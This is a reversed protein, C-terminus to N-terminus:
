VRDRLIARGDRSSTFYCRLIVRVNAGPNQRTTQKVKSAEKKRGEKENRVYKYDNSYLYIVGIFNESHKLIVTSIFPVLSFGRRTIRMRVALQHATGRLM